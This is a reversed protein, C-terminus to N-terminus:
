QISLSFNDILCHCCFTAVGFLYLIVTKFFNYQGHWNVMFANTLPTFMLIKNKFGIGTM